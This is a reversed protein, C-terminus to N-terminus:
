ITRPFTERIESLPSPYSPIALMNPILISRMSELVKKLLIHRYTAFPEAFYTAIHSWKSNKMGDLGYELMVAATSAASASSFLCRAAALICGAQKKLTTDL